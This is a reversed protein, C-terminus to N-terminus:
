QGIEPQEGDPPSSKSSGGSAVIAVSAALGLALGVPGLLVTGAIAPGWMIAKGAMENSLDESFSKGAM